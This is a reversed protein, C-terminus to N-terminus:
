FFIFHTWLGGGGRASAHASDVIRMRVEAEGGGEGGAAVLGASGGGSQGEGTDPSHFLGGRM